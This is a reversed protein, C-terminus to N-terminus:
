VRAEQTAIGHTIEKLRAPQLREYGITFIM